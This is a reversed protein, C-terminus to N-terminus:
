ESKEESAQQARRRAHMKRVLPPLGRWMGLVVTAGAIGLVWQWTLNFERAMVAFMLYRPWRGVLSGLAFKLRSYGESIALLRVFDIPIPLFSGAALTGFPARNYWGAVRLYWRTRRIRDVGEYKYLFTLLYYDHMNGIATGLAGVTAVVLPHLGFGGGAEPAAALIALWATPLPLCTCAVSLYGFLFVVHATTSGKGSILYVAVLVALMAFFPLFWAWLSLPERAIPRLDQPDGPAPDPRSSNAM